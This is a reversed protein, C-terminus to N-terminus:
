SVTWGIDFILVRQDTSLNLKDVILKTVEKSAALKRSYPLYTSAVDLKQNLYWNVLYGDRGLCILNTCRSNEFITKLKVATEVIAPAVISYGFKFWYDPQGISLSFNVIEPKYGHIYSKFEDLNVFKNFLKFYDAGFKADEKPDDGCHFHDGKPLPIKSRLNRSKQLGYDSSAFYTVGVLGAMDGM